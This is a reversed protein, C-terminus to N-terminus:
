ICLNTVADAACGYGGGGEVHFYVVGATVKYYVEVRVVGVFVTVITYAICHTEEGVNGVAPDRSFCQVLEENISGDETNM